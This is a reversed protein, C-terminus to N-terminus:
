SLTEIEEIAIDGEDRKFNRVFANKVLEKGNDKYGVDAIIYIKYIIKIAVPIFLL